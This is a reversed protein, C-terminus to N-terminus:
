DDVLRGNFEGSISTNNDSVDDCHLKVDTREPFVMWCSKEYVYSQSNTIEVDRMTNWAGGHPRYRISVRASGGSGNERSMQIKVMDVYLTKGLPVTFCAINTQGNHVPMVAFINTTTTAQRLILKGENSGFTGATLVRMRTARYYAEVGLSVWSTGNLTVTVNPLLAGTDDMLNSIEVTRAGTGGDTDNANESRIELTEASLPFGTYLGGGNWIDEPVSGTDIETNRGFKSFQEIGAVNGQAVEFSYEPQPAILGSSAFSLAELDEYTLTLHNDWALTYSIQAANNSINAYQFTYDGDTLTIKTCLWAGSNMQEGLYTIDGVKDTDILNYDSIIGSPVNVSGASLNLESGQSYGFESM